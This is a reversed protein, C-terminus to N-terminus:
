ETVAAKRGLWSHVVPTWPGLASAGLLRWSAAELPSALVARGAMQRALGYDGTDKAVYAAHRLLTTPDPSLGARHNTRGDAMVHWLSLGIDAGSTSCATTPIPSPRHVLADTCRYLSALRELWGDGVHDARVRDRLRAGFALRAPGDRMLECVREIYAHESPPNPLSESLSGIPLKDFPNRWVHTQAVARYDAVLPGDGSSLM